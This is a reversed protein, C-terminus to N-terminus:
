YCLQAITLDVFCAPLADCNAKFMAFHLGSSGTGTHESCPKWLTVWANSSITATRDTVHEPRRLAAIVKHTYIDPVQSYDFTGNLVLEIAPGDAAYGLLDALDDQMFPLKETLRFREEGTQLALTEVERRDFVETITGDRNATGM